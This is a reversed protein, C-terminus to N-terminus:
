GRKLEAVTVGQGGEERRGARISAVLPHVKLVERVADQLAGTGYGHVVQVSTHRDLYAADLFRRLEAKAEDVRKGLLQLRSGSPTAASRVVRADAVSRAPAASRDPELEDFGVELSMGGANVQARKKRENVSVVTGSTGFRPLRVRAGPQVQEAAMGPLAATSERPERGKKAVEGATQDLKRRADAVGKGRQEPAAQRKLEDLIGEVERRTGAVLNEAEERADRRLKSKELKWAALQEAMKKEQALAEARARAALERELELVRVKEHLDRIITELDIRREGIAKRARDVVAEPIGLRRAIILANSNGPIGELLQYTPRLTEPDFAVSANVMGDRAHALLKLDSLHTTAISVTGREQLAELIAEGLPGGEAPDTGAGLEDLLVLTRDDAANLIEVIRKLHGSFTSLSQEISQEDGIDCYIRRFVGIRSTAEAPVPLGSQAMLALLGVTKLTVTKGGTNPGTIVMTRVTGGIRVDIAVTPHGAFLLLPHRAQRLAVEPLEVVEPMGMRYQAGFRALAAHFDLDVLLAHNLEITAIEEAVRATLARLIRQIEVRERARLDRLENGPEVIEEPEIFITNGSDSRDHVIGRVMHRYNSKVPLVTRGDRQTVFADQLFSSAERSRMLTEVRTRIGEELSRATQRIARLDPSARDSITGDDAIADRLEEELRPVPALARVLTKLDPIEFAAGLLAARVLRAAQLEDAIRLLGGAELASDKVRALQLEARLDHIGELPVPKGEDQVRRFDAAIRQRRRIDDPAFLPRVALLAERGPASVAFDALRALVKPFELVQLAHEDMRRIRHPGRAACLLGRM